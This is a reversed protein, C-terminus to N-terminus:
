LFYVRNLRLERGGNLWARPALCKWLYGSYIDSEDALFSIRHQKDDETQSLDEKVAARRAESAPNAKLQGLSVQGWKRQIM